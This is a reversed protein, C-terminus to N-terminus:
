ILVSHLDPLRRYHAGDNWNSAVYLVSFDSSYFAYGLSIFAISVFFFQGRAASLGASMFVPQNSSAGKFSFTSQAIALVLALILSFHGIEPIM